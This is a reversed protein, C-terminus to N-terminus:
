YLKPVPQIWRYNTMNQTVFPTVGQRNTTSPREGFQFHSSQLDRKRDENFPQQGATVPRYAM